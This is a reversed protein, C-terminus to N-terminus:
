TSTKARALIAQLTRTGPFKPALKCIHWLLERESGKLTEPCTIRARHHRWEGTVYRDAIVRIADARARDSPLHPYFEAALRAILADRQRRAERRLEVEARRGRRILVEDLAVVILRVDGEDLLVGALLRARTTALLELM